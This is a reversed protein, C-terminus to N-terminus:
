GFSINVRNQFAVLYDKWWSPQDGSKITEDTVNGTTHCAICDVPPQIRVAV